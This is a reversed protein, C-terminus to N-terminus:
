RAEGKETQGGQPPLPSESQMTLFFGYAITIAAEPSDAHGVSYFYPELAGCRDCCDCTKGITIKCHWAPLHAPIDEGPHAQGDGHPGYAYRTAAESLQALTLTANPPLEPITVSGAQPPDAIQTTPMKM